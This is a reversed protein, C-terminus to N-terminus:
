SLPPNEVFAELSKFSKFHRIKNQRDYNLSPMSQLLLKTYPHQPDTYVTDVSGMEVFRGQHMIAVQHSIHRVINLDHSIFLYTLGLEKQLRLLLNIIQAQISVDLSSIPEDCVIFDPNPALARAIGIRQRQGGSFEHPFRRKASRPLGVLDLLDDVRPNMQHIKSPEAIIEEITMRPNLSAYPDQFIIQMKRYLSLDKDHTIDKGSLFIQGSTPDVLRLLMKGITSKGSGSEGVLGLIEGKKISFSVGKVASFDRKGLSYTKTLNKAEILIEQSEKPEEFVKPDHKMEILPNSRWCAISDILAPEKQCEKGVFPCRPAFSCGKIPFLLNPPAGDISYLPQRKPTDMQPLSRVLMQTYPHRPNELIQKVAGSEVIKGAYFVLVRDCMKEIISLDHTILLLSTHSDRKKLLQLIQDQVIIDLATTPEDAILLSPNCSLAIAILVRQRMGGSLQHPYQELREEPYPVEMQKLLELAKARAEKSSVIQHYILSEEIQDGIKMTPNLAQMPDQFIMGIKKGRISRMEKEKLQLLDQSQFLVKGYATASTLRAIAQVTASKGSGSEGVIGLAEGPFLQFSVGRVAELKKEYLSFLVKLDEVELLPNM